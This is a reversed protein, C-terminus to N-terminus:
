HCVYLCNDCMSALIHLTKADVRAQALAEILVACFLLNRDFTNVTVTDHSLTTLTKHKNAKNAKSQKAARRKSKREINCYYVYFRKM